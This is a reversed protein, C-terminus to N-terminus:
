ILRFFFSLSCSTHTSRVPPINASYGSPFSLFPLFPSTFKLTNRLPLNQCFSPTESQRKSGIIEKLAEAQKDPYNSCSTTHHCLMRSRYLKYESSGTEVWKGYITARQTASVPPENFGQHATNQFVLKAPRTDKTLVGLM